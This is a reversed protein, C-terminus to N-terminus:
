CAVRSVFLVFLEEEGPHLSGIKRAVRREGEESSEEGDGESDGSSEEDRARRARRMSLENIRACAWKPKFNRSRLVSVLPGGRRPVSPPVDILVHVAIRFLKIAFEGNKTTKNCGVLFPWRVHPAVM